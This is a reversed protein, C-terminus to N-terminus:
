LGTLSSAAGFRHLVRQAAFGADAAYTVLITL